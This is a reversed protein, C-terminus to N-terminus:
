NKKFYKWNMKKRAESVIIGLGKELRWSVITGVIALIIESLVMIIVRTENDAM